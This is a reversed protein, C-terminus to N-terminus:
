CAPLFPAPVGVFLVAVASFTALLFGAYAAQGGPDHRALEPAETGPRDGGPRDARDRDAADADAADADAADADAADGAAADGGAAAGAAAAGRRWAGLSRHAAAACVLFAVATAALTVTRPVPPDFLELGHGSGTCGAEAVLYVVMFHTFWIVPGALLLIWLRRGRRDAGLDVPVATGDVATAAGLDVDPHEKGSV